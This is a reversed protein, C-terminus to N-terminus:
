WGPLFIACTRKRVRTLGPKYGHHPTPTRHRAIMKRLLTVMDPGLLELLQTARIIPCPTLSHTLSCHKVDCVFPCYSHFVTSALAV